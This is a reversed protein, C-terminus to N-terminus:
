RCSRRPPGPVSAIAAPAAGCWVRGGGGGSGAPAPRSRRPRLRGAGGPDALPPPSGGPCRPGHRAPVRAGLQTLPPSPPPHGTPGHLPPGPGPSRQPSSHAASGAAQPTGSAACRPASSPCPRGGRSRASLPRDAGTQPAPTGGARGRRERGRREGIQGVEAGVLWAAAFGQKEPCGFYFHLSREKLDKVAYEHGIARATEEAPLGTPPENKGETGSWRQVSTSTQSDRGADLWWSSCRRAPRCGASSSWRWPEPQIFRRGGRSGKGWSTGFM